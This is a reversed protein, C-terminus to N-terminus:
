FDTPSKPFHAGPNAAWQPAAVISFMVKIGGKSTADIASDLHSWDIQANPQPQLGDWRVQQTLWGFGAETTAKVTPAAQGEVVQAAFGYNQNLKPAEEGGCASTFLVVALSVATLLSASRRRNM